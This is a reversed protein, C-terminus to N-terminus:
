NLMTKEKSSKKFLKIMKLNILKLKVSMMIKEINIEASNAQDILDLINNIGDAFEDDTLERLGKRGFGEQLSEQQVGSLLDNLGDIAGRKADGSLENLMQIIEEITPERPEKGGGMSNQPAAPPTM